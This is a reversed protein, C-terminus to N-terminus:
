PPADSVMVTEYLERMRQAMLDRDFRAVARERAAGGMRRQSEPDHLLRLVANSLADASRPSVLLGDIGPRVIEAPGHPGDFAVVPCGAAMAEVVVRGFPEPFAPHLLIDARQLIRQVDRVYGLIEVRSGLGFESVRRMLHSRTESQGGLRDDCVIVFDVNPERAVVRQAVDVAIAHGKWPVLQGIVAVVIRDSSTLERGAQTRRGTFRSTDVGNPITVVKSPDAVELALNRCCSSPVVIRTCRRALWRGITEPLTLDRLHWITPVPTRYPLGLAYLAATTSNAHVIRPPRRLMLTRLALSGSALRMAQLCQKLISPSRRLHGLFPCVEFPIRSHRLHEAFEGTSPLVVRVTYRRRDLACVLDYLSREAGGLLGVHSVFLIEVSRTYTM